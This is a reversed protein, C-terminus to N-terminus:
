ESGFYARYTQRVIVIFLLFKDIKFLFPNWAKSYKELSFLLYILKKRHKRMEVIQRGSQHDPNKNFHGFVKHKEWQDKSKPIQTTTRFKKKWFRIRPSKGNLRTNGM